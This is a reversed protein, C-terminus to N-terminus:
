TQMPVTGFKGRGASNVLLAIDANSEQLKKKYQAFSEPETLDLLLLKTKTGISDALTQLREGRRAILWIEDYIGLRDALLAFERGIGSSAGTIVATKM